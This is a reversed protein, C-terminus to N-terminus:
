STSPAARSARPPRMSSPLSCSRSTRLPRYGGCRSSATRRAPSAASSPTPFTFSYLTREVSRCSAGRTASNGRAGLSGEGKATQLFREMLARSSTVFHYNDSVAYYSRIKGDPSSLFSVNQGAIKLTEEKAKGAKVRDARPGALSNGLLFNNRAEFLFGIAAGDQMLLDTGVMAVDSIVTPGLMRSLQTQELGTPGPGAPETPRETRADRCPEASRRGLHRAHGPVLPLKRLQRLPHLLIRGACAARHARDQAGPGAQRRPSPPMNPYDLPPVEAVPPLPQDARDNDQRLGLLRDQELATRIGESGTLASVEREFQQYGSEAIRQRPLRLNLRRALNNVLYTEVQPPYDPKQALLRRPAAYDRWWADLLRRQMAPAVRPQVTVPISTRAEIVLNLPERGRFLFYITTRPPRNLVGRLIGGVEQRM